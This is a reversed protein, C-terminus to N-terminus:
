IQAALEKIEEQEKSDKDAIKKQEHKLDDGFSKALRRVNERSEEITPNDELSAYLDKRTDKIQLMYAQCVDDLAVWKAYYGVTRQKFANSTWVRLRKGEPYKMARQVMQQMDKKALAECHKQMEKWFFAANMMITSLSKLAGISNHLAHIAVDALHEKYKYNWIRELFEILQQDVEMRMHRQKKMEELHKMDEQNAENYLKNFMEELEKQLAEAIKRRTEFEKREEKIKKKRDEQCGKENQTNELADIVDNTAAEFDTHLEEAAKAMQEAVKALLLLTELAMEELGDLLFEYTGQLEQLVSTSANKFNQVTVASKDALKTVKYGVKQVKIQLKTSGAVGNYAVRILTGLKALDDVLSALDLFGNLEEKSNKVLSSRVDPIKVLSFTEGEINVSIDKSSTSM